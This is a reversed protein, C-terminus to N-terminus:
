EDDRWNDVRSYLRDGNRASTATIMRSMAALTPGYHRDRLYQNVSASMGEAKTQLMDLTFTNDAPTFHGLHAETSWEETIEDEALPIQSWSDLRHLDERCSEHVILRIGRPGKSEARHARIVGSGLFPANAHFSSALGTALNWEFAHFHGQAIAGRSPIGELLLWAILEGAADLAPELATSAIFVSDSFVVARSEVPTAHARQPLVRSPVDYKAQFRAHANFQSLRFVARKCCRQFTKYQRYLAVVPPDAFGISVPNGGSGGVTESVLQTFFDAQEDTLGEVAASFGLLDIFAVYVILKEM